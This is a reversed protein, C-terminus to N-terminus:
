SAVNYSRARELAAGFTYPYTAAISQIDLWDKGGMIRLTDTYPTHVKSEYDNWGIGISSMYQGFM